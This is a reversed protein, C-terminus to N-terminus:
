LDASSSSDRTCSMLVNSAASCRTVMAAAFLAAAVTADAENEWTKRNEKMIIICHPVTYCLCVSIQFEGRPFSSLKLFLLCASRTPPSSSSSSASSFLFVLFLLFFWFFQRHLVFLVLLLSFLSKGYHWKIFMALKDRPVVFTWANSWYNQHQSSSYQGYYNTCLLRPLNNM